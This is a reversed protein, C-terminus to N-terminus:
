DVMAFSTDRGKQAQEGAGKKYIREESFSGDGIRKGNEGTRENFLGALTISPSQRAM